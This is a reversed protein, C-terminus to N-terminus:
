ISALSDHSTSSWGRKILSAIGDTACQLAALENHADLSLKDHDLAHHKKVADAEKQLALLLAKVYQPENPDDNDTLKASDPLHRLVM